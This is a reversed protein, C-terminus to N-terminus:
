FEARFSGKEQTITLNMATFVASTQRPSTLTKGKEPEKQPKHFQQLKGTFWNM